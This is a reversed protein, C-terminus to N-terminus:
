NPRARRPSTPPPPGLTTAAASQLWGFPLSTFGRLNGAASGAAGILFPDLPLIEHKQLFGLAVALGRYVGDGLRQRPELGIRLKPNKFVNWVSSAMANLFCCPLDDLVEAFWSFLVVL